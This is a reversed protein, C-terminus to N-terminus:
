TKAAADLKIAGTELGAEMLKILLRVARVIEDPDSALVQAISLGRLSWVVLRMLALSTHRGKGTKTLRRSQLQADEEIQQQIPALKEALEPDSRSSQLIELVALGSPRSFVEWVIEPFALLRERPTAIGSLVEEYHAIEQEYVSQVVFTMLDAKTNFQHVMAGRSVGAEEAVLITTTAAYGHQHLVKIAADLVLTRTNASREAQTRRQRAQPM